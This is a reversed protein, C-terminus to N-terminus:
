PQPTASPTGKAACSFWSCRWGGKVWAGRVSVVGTRVKVTAPNYEAYGKSWGCVLMGERAELGAKVWM